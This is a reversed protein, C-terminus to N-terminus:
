EPVKKGLILEIMSLDRAQLPVWDWEGEYLGERVFIVPGVLPDGYPTGPYFISAYPNFPQPHSKIKGSEDVVCGFGYPLAVHELCDCGISDRFCKLMDEHLCHIWRLDGDPYLVLYKEMVLYPRDPMM